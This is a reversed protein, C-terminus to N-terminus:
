SKYLGLKKALRAANKSVDDEFYIRSGGDEKFLELARGQNFGYNYRWWWFTDKGLIDVCLEKLWGPPFDRFAKGHAILVAGFCDCGEPLDGHGWIYLPERVIRVSMNQAIQISEEIILEPKM